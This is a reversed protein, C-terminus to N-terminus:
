WGIQYNDGVSERTYAYPSVIHRNHIDFLVNKSRNMQGKNLLNKLQKNKDTQKFCTTCLQVISVFIFVIIVDTHQPLSYSKM